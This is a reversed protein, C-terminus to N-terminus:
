KSARNRYAVYEDMSLKSLDVAGTNNGATVAPEIPEPADPRSNVPNSGAGLKAIEASVDSSESLKVLELPNKALHYLIDASNDADLVEEVIEKTFPLNPNQVILEFDPYKEVGQDFIEQYDSTPEPQSEQKETVEPTVQSLKWEVVADLYEDEDFFEERDPRPNSPAIEDLRKELQSLKSENEAKLRALEAEAARKEATLRKIRREARRDRKPAEPESEAEESTASEDVESVEEPAVQELEEANQNEETM